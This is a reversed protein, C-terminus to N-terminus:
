RRAIKKSEEGLLCTSFNQSNMSLLLVNTIWISPVERGNWPFPLFHLLFIFRNINKRAGYSIQSSIFRPLSLKSIHVTFMSFLQQAYNTSLAIKVCVMCHRITQENTTKSMVRKRSARSIERVERFGTKLYERKGSNWKLKDFHNGNLEELNKILESMALENIEERWKVNRSVLM